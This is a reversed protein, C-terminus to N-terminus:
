KGFLSSLFGKKIPKEVAWILENKYRLANEIKHGFKGWAFGSQIPKARLDAIVFNDKLRNAFDVLIMDSSKKAVNLEIFGSKNTWIDHVVEEYIKNLNSHIADRGFEDVHFIFQSLSESHLVIVAPDHCVFFVKGWNGNDDIDLIWFNGFGDPALQISHPFFNELGFERISDFTIEDFGYFDFGSTFKLLEVIDIPIHNNPLKKSLLNIQDDTLGHRLEVHYEDGDESIYKQKLISKLQEVPPIM